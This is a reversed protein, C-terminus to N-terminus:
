RSVYFEGKVLRGSKKRWFDSFTEGLKQFFNYFHMYNKLFFKEQSLNQSGHLIYNQFIQWVFNSLIGFFNAKLGFIVLCNIKKKLICNKKWSFNRPVRLNYTQCGRWFVKAWLGFILVFFIIKRLFFHKKRLINSRVTLNGNQCDEQM